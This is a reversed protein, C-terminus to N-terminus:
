EVTVSKALNRPQDVDHGRLLASHYALQQLPLVTLLPAMLPSVHPVWLVADALTAVEDDGDMAVAIVPAGRTRAQQLQSLMKPRWPDDPVLCLVPVSADLLAIPGHKMEGAAYGEAHVYSLEKLKLAGELAIPMQPGRGLFLCHRMSIFREALAMVADERQLTKEVLAPLRVLELLLQCAEAATLTGRLEGLKIALLLLDALPATFAKTSAVGIEPGARMMIHGDAIRQAQSGVANVIAWLRAGHRRAEEMAALTDVTEGSQSIALVATKADLLPDAYRFESAIVVETRLRALRELYCKGVMGANAATGCGVIYLQQLTRAFKTDLQLEPLQVIADTADIRGALTNRLAQPQEHIEKQMFTTFGSRDAAQADWDIRQEELAVAAGALTEVRVSDREVVAMQQAELYLVRRTHEILAPTDSAIFNENDGLGIVLGGANGLRACVLREPEDPSLLVVVNAGRLQRCAARAADTFDLGATLEREVLHAITETDTESEFRCGQAILEENLERYNEVIGNHVVAVRGTTGLHPHANRANVAGHTAWRTHGIGSKGRLPSEALRAALQRLKGVEKRVGIGGSEMVAIGASDYGRYELKKLSDHILDSANRGGIYGVIGCM